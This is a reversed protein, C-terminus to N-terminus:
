VILEGKKIVTKWESAPGQHNYVHHSCILDSRVDSAGQKKEFFWGCGLYPQSLGVLAGGKVGEDESSREDVEGAKRNKLNLVFNSGM